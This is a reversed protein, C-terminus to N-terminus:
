NRSPDEPRVRTAWELPLDIELLQDTSTASGQGQEQLALEADAPRQLPPLRLPLPYRTLM